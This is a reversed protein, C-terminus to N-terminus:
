PSVHRCGHRYTGPRMTAGFVTVGDLTGPIIRIARLTFTHVGPEEVTLHGIPTSFEPFYQSRPTAARETDSLTGEATRGESHSGGVSVEVGHPTVEETDHVPAAIASVAFTGPRCVRVKWSLASETDMWGATLGNSLIELTSDPGLSVDALHAHLHIADDPQQVTLEDAEADGDISLAVVPVHEVASLDPLTLALRDIEGAETRDQAVDVPADLGLVGAGTVRSRLGHVVLAGEPPQLLHLFLRGPKCTMRLGDHEYPFPSGTTGYIAQGNVAMWAGIARLREASPEPVVGEATPGVNLLYNM